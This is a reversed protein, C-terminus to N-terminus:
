RRGRIVELLNELKTITEKLLKIEEGARRCTEQLFKKQGELAEIRKTLDLRGRHEM